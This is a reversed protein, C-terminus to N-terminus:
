NNTPANEVELNYHILRLSKLPKKSRKIKLIGVLVAKM